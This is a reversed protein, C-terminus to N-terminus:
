YYPYYRALRIEMPVFMKLSDHWCLDSRFWIDKNSLKVIPGGIGHISYPFKKTTDNTLCDFSIGISEKSSFTWLGKCILSDSKKDYVEVAAGYCYNEIGVSESACNKGLYIYFDGFRSNWYPLLDSTGINHMTLVKYGEIRQKFTRFHILETDEEYKKCSQYIFFINIGIIIYMLQKAFPKTIRITYM